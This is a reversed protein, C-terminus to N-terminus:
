LWHGLDPPESCTRSRGSRGSWWGPDASAFRHCLEKCAAPCANWPAGKQGMNRKRRWATPGIESRRQGCQAQSQRPEDEAGVAAM